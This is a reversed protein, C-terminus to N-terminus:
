ALAQNFDAHQMGKGALGPHKTQESSHGLCHKTETEMIGGATLFCQGACAQHRVANKAM